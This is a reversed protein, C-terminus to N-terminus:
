YLCHNNQKCDLRETLLVVISWLNCPITLKGTMQLQLWTSLTELHRPAKNYLSEYCKDSILISYEFYANTNSWTNDTHITPLQKFITSDREHPEAAQPWRLFAGNRGGKGLLLIKWIRVSQYLISEKRKTIYMVCRLSNYAMRYKHTFRDEKKRFTVFKTKLNMCKTNYSSYVILTFTFKDRQKILCWATFVYQPLPNM